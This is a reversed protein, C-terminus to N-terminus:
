TLQKATVVTCLPTDSLLLAVETLVNSVVAVSVLVEQEVELTPFTIVECVNTESHLITSTEVTSLSTAVLVHLITVGLTTFSEVNM